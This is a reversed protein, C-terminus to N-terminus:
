KEEKGEWSHLSHGGRGEKEKKVPSHHACFMVAKTTERREMVAKTMQKNRIHDLFSLFRSAGSVAM